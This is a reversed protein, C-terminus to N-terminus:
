TTLRGRVYGNNLFEQLKEPRIRRNEIGNNVYISGKIRKSAESLKKRTEETPNKGTRGKTLGTRWAHQMNESPTVWELNVIRNDHKNGNIHNVESKNDPNPIFAEAVLRHVGIHKQKSNVYLGVFFYGSNAFSKLIRGSATGKGGKIRRVRGLSSIQYLGEYGEIDKWIEDM